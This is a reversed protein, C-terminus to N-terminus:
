CLYQYKLLCWNVFLYPMLEFPFIYLTIHSMNRLQLLRVANILTTCVPYFALHNIYPLWLIAASSGLFGIVGISSLPEYVFFQIM